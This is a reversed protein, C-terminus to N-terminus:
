APENGSGAGPPRTRRVTHGRGRRIRAAISQSLTGTLPRDPAGHAAAATASSGSESWVGRLRAPKGRETLVLAAPLAVLVGVLSVSLDVLTVLGFDRLM